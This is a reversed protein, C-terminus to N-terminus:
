FFRASQTEVVDYCQNIFPQVDYSMLMAVNLSPEGIDKKMDECM